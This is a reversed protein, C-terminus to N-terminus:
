RERDRRNNGGAVIAVAGAVIVLGILLYISTPPELAVAILLALVAVVAVITLTVGQRSM